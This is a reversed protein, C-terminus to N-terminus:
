ESTEEDASVYYNIHISGSDQDITVPARTAPAAGNMPDAAMSSVTKQITSTDDGLARGTWEGSPGPESNGDKDVVYEFWYVKVDDGVTATLNLETGQGVEIQTFGDGKHLTIPESRGDDFPMLYISTYGFPQRVESAAGNSLDVHGFRVDGVTAGVGAAMAGVLTAATVFALFGSRRRAIGAIILSFALVLAAAFLALGVTVADPTQSWLWVVAGTVLALGTTTAVYAFSARPNSTRRVRHREAAEASFAAAAEERERRSQERAARDADQQQERWARDQQQWASHQERWAGIDSPDAPRSPEPAPELVPASATMAAHAIGGADAGRGDTDAVLGSDDGFPVPTATAASATQPDAPSGGPTRRAARVILVLLVTVLALGVLFVFVSLPSPGGFGHDYGLYPGTVVRLLVSLASLPWLTMLGFIVGALIGLQAPEFHGHRLARAHVRGEADPLLAWAIAYLLILPLGCLTAVVLVGRVILPDIRLRAAIGAAVGGIWGESRAVGLGAVWAFFRDSRHRPTPPTEASPPATPITM